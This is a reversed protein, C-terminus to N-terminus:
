EELRVKRAEALGEVVAASDRESLTGMVEKGVLFGVDVEITTM